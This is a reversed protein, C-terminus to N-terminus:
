HAREAGVEAIQDVFRWSRARLHVM